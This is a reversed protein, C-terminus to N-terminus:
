IHTPFVYADEKSFTLFGRTSSTLQQSSEANCIITRGDDLYGIVRTEGYWPQIKLSTMPLSIVGETSSWNQETYKAKVIPIGISIVEDESLGLPADLDIVYNNQIAVSQLRPGTIRGELLNWGGIIKAVTPNEPKRAVEDVSGFQQLYSKDLVAVHTALFQAEREDHTVYIFTTDFDDRLRKMLVLMTEKLVNDLSSLPEDLLLLSPKYVLARALAVRQLEGGSLNAISSHAVTQLGVLALIRQVANRWQEGSIIRGGNTFPFAVNGFVTLHPFLAVPSQFVFGIDRRYTPVAAQDRGEVFVQGSRPKILGAIIKLLTTKGSGSPGLISVIQGKEVHLSISNLVRHDGFNHSVSRIELLSM